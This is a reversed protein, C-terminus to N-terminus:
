RYLINKNVDLMILNVFLFFSVEVGEPTAEPGKSTDITIGIRKFCGLTELKTRVRQVQDIVQYFDKAKFLDAVQAKIIDDKTRILGDIHIKDVRARQHLDISHVEM